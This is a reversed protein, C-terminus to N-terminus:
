QASRRRLNGAVKFVTPQGMSSASGGFANLFDLTAGQGMLAMLAQKTGMGVGASSTGINSSVDLAESQTLGAAQMNIITQNALSM